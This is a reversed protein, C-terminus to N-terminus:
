RGATIAITAGRQAAALLAEREGGARGIADKRCERVQNKGKVDVDSATGCVERAAQALRQDLVRQGQQSRLDIDSTHVYSVYTQAEPAVPEALAPAAKIAGATIIASILIIRLTDKMTAVGKFELVPNGARGEM